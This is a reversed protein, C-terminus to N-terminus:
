AVKRVAGGGEAGMAALRVAGMGVGVGLALVLVARLGWRPARFLALIGLLALALLGARNYALGVGMAGLFLLGPSRLGLAVGATLVFYGALHGKQPFTVVPLDGPSALPYFLPRGTRVELLALLALLGGGLALGLALRRATGPDERTRLYVLLAVALMLLGWGLGDTYDAVSGTLAVAREPSLLAALAMAGALALLLALPPQERLRRPLALLHGLHTKPHALMELFAGLLVFLLVFGHKALVVAPHTPLWPLVVFPYLFAFVPWLWRLIM